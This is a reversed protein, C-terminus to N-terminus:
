EPDGQPGQGEAHRMSEEFDLEAEVTAEYEARAKEDGSWDEGPCEDEPPEVKVTNIRWDNDEIDWIVETVKYSAHHAGILIEEGIRPLYRPWEDGDLTYILKRDEYILVNYTM